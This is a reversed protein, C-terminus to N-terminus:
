MQQFLNRNQFFDGLPSPRDAEQLDIYRTIVQNLRRNKKPLTLLNSGKLIDTTSEYFAYLDKGYTGGFYLDSFKKFKSQPIVLNTMIEVTLIKADTESLPYNRLGTRWAQFVSLRKIMKRVSRFALYELEEYDLRSTHRRFEVFEGDFALNSCIFVRTGCTLGLALSKDMSNRIGLSFCAENSGANLDFVGFMQNGGRGLAYEASVIDMGVTQIASKVATIVEKHHIPSFTKTYPVAPVQFVEQETYKNGLLTSQSM